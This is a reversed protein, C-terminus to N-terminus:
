SVSRRFGGWLRTREDLSLDQGDYDQFPGRVALIIYKDGLKM